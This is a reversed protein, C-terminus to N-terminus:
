ARDDIGALWLSLQRKSFRWHTGICRGPLEGSKALRLLMEPSMRLFRSAATTGKIVDDDGVVLDPLQDRLRDAVADVLLDTLRRDLDPAPESM